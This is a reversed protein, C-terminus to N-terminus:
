IGIMFKVGIIVGGPQMINLFQISTETLSVNDVITYAKETVPIAYGAYFVFKSSQGVKLNYSYVFNVTGAQKLNLKVNQEIGSPEVMLKTEFNDLGSASYYAVSYGSKFPKHQPYYTIGGGIKWGWSGLGASGYLSFMKLVPFEVGASLIGCDNISTGFGLFVPQTKVVDVDKLNSQALVPDSSLVIIALTALIVVTNIKKRKTKM